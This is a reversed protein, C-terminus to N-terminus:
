GHKRAGPIGLKALISVTQYSSLSTQLLTVGEREARHHTNENQEQDGTIIVAAMGVLVAVAIINPHAQITVWVCDETANAICDSLLDGCYGAKIERDMEGAVLVQAELPEIIEQVKKM